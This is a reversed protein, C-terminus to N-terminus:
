PPGSIALAIWRADTGDRRIFALQARRLAEDKDSGRKLEAYFKAMLAATARDDISWLASVVSRAGAYQFARALSLAGEGALHRGRASDCASLTVLDADLRMQDFIEWAQLLGNDTPGTSTVPQAPASLRLGANLPLVNNVVAHTAFHLLRTSRPLTKINTETADPGFLVRLNPGLLTALDEVERRSGPLPAGGSGRAVDENESSDRPDSSDATTARDVDTSTIEARVATNAVPSLSPRSPIPDGIAVMLDGM